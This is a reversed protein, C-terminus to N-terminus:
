EPLPPTLTGALCLVKCVAVLKIWTVYTHFHFHNSIKYKQLSFHM